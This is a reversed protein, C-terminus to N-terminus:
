GAVGDPFGVADGDFGWLACGAGACTTFQMAATQNHIQPTGIRSTVSLILTHM